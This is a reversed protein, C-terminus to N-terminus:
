VSSASYVQMWLKVSDTILDILQAVHLNSIALAVLPRFPSHILPTQVKSSEADRYCPSSLAGAEVVLAFFQKHKGEAASAELTQKSSAILKM